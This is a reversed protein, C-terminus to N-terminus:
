FGLQGKLFALIDATENIVKGLPKGSGHGADSETRLLVINQKNVAQLLAAMKRAHLPDVRSDKNATTFLVNPYEVGKKVNHYPSWKIIRYFDEKKSPNGYENVWRAAVLFKPFRVMDLLPVECIVAKYLDPRQVLCAGVLLGGNSGGIIALKQPSAYKQKILFGAAAQFDDFSKQKNKLIGGRHWSEGFEGGGRINAIVYIGGRRLFPLWARLFHPTASNDFGGYGYLLAPNKGDLKVSKKAFIFMPVKIGDFSKYWTQRAQFEKQNLELKERHYIKYNGDKSDYRFITGASFFSVVKFFFEKEERRSGFNSIVSLEPLPLSGVQRGDYNFIRVASCVNVLYNALIKDETFVLFALRHKEEPIFVQWDEIKKPLKNVEAMLVRFKEARYNAVLYIKDKALYADFKADIGEVIPRTKKNIVDYLFVDNRTWDSSAEIVLWRGDPSLHMSPMDAKPRGAGFIMQDNKSDDGLQHFFIRRFYHEDGQPVSGPAPECVYFFGSEDPLWSVIAWRANKITDKLIKGAKVKKIYLTANEDGGCSLGYAIYTGKPSVRWYDVSVIGQKALKNPDILVNSNESLGKKFYVVPQNQGAKQQSWFYIGRVPLPSSQWGTKMYSLLEKQFQKRGSIKKLIKETFTNQAKVWNKVEQKEGDELWRYNDIITKGYMKEVVPDIKTKPYRQM